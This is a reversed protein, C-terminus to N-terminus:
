WLHLFVCRCQRGCSYCHSELSKFKYKLCYECSRNAKRFLSEIKIYADPWVFCNVYRIEIMILDFNTFVVFYKLNTITLEMLSWLHM